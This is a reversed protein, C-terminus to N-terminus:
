DKSKMIFIRSEDNGYRVKDGLKYNPRPYTQLCLIWKGDYKIINGPSSYNLNQDKPTLIKVRSWNILDESKSSATFSFIKGEITRILTFFLHFSGNYFLVAPDRYATKEDGYFIIPSDIASLIKSQGNLNITQTFFLLIILKKM